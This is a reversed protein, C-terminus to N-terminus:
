GNGGKTDISLVHEAEPVPNTSTVRQPGSNAQGNGDINAKVVEM